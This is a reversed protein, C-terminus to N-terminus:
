KTDSGPTSELVSITPGGYQHTVDILYGTPTRDYYRDGIAYHLINNDRRAIVLSQGEADRVLENKRECSLSRDARITRVQAKILRHSRQPQHRYREREVITAKNTLSPHPQKVEM